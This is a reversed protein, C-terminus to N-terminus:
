NPMQRKVTEWCKKSEMIAKQKWYSYSRAISRQIPSWDQRNAKHRACIQEGSLMMETLQKDIINLEKIDDDTFSSHDMAAKDYLDKTREVLKHDTIHKTIHDIYLKTSKGNGSTLSRSPHSAIDSYHSKFFSEIDLDFAIELHDSTLPFNMGLTSINVVNFGFTFVYNIDRNPTTTTSNPRNNMLHVFPDTLGRELRLWEISYKKVSSGKYCDRMTQNADLM